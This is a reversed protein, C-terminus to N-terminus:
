ILSADGTATVLVRQGCLEERDIAEIVSRERCVAWVRAGDEVGCSLVLHGPTGDKGLNLAFAEITGPGEYEQHFARTPLAKAEDDVQAHRFGEGTPPDAGYIGVAHKAIFGGISSVLAREGPGGERLRDMTGAIAHMVYSNLPGGSFTLGGTVTLDRDESFGLESAAMQVASPFCSYLDVHNIEEASTGALAYAKRGVLGIAPQTHLDPRNSIEHTKLAEASAHLYVRREAPVDLREATEHSCLLLAAGQDVVMNSCMYKTYPFAHMRNQETPTRIEEPSRGETSWAFPNTRAVESMSSWLESVRKAHAELTEGRQYRMANEYLAFIL